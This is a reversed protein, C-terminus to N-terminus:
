TCLPIQSQINWQHDACFSVHCCGTQKQRDSWWNSGHSLEIQRHSRLAAPQCSLGNSPIYAALRMLLWHYLATTHSSLRLYFPNPNHLLLDVSIYTYLSLLLSTHFSLTLPRLPLPLSLIDSWFCGTAVFVCVQGFTCIQLQCTTTKFIDPVKRDTVSAPLAWSFNAPFYRLVVCSKRGKNSAIRAM